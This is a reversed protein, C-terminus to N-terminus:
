GTEAILLQAYENQLRDVINSQPLPEGNLSVARVLGLSSLSLFTGDAHSLEEVDIRIERTPIALNECLELATQRTIGPLIGAPVPTTFVMDGRVWFLNSSSGEVVHGDTNLLLAEDADASDAEARAMIQALKNSTKFRALPDRSPLLFQSTILKWGYAPESPLPHQSIIVLPTEAGKPSYGRAGRGRSLTLRLLSNPTENATLLERSFELLADNSFPLRIGLFEAGAQLRQLHQLWRFPKGNFVRITEFVGDGYLFGRDFISVVAENEAV